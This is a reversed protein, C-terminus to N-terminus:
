RARVPPKSDPSVSLPIGPVPCFPIRGGLRYLIYSVVMLLICVSLLATLIITAIKWGNTSSSAETELNQRQHLEKQLDLMKKHDEQRIQDARVLDPWQAVARSMKAEIEQQTLTPMGFSGCAANYLDLISARAKESDSFDLVGVRDLLQQRLEAADTLFPFMYISCRVFDQMPPIQNEKIMELRTSSHNVAALYLPIWFEFLFISHLDTVQANPVRDKLNQILMAEAEEDTVQLKMTEHNVLNHFRIDDRWM